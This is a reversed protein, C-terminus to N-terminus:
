GEGTEAIRQFLVETSAANALVSLPVLRDMVHADVSEDLFLRPSNARGSVQIDFLEMLERELWDANRFMPVLTEVADGPAVRVRLTVNAGDVDFLYALPNAGSADRVFATIVSLRAGVTKLARAAASLDAKDVLTVWATMPGRSTTTFTLEGRIGKLVPTLETSSSPADSM